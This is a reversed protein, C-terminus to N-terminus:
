QVTKAKMQKSVKQKAANVSKRVYVENDHTAKATDMCADKIQVCKHGTNAMWIKPPKVLDWDSKGNKAFMDYPELVKVTGAKQEGDLLVSTIYDWHRNIWIHM